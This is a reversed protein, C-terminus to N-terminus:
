RSCSRSRCCSTSSRATSTAGSTASGGGDGRRAIGRVIAALVAMGSAPRSSTRCRSGPWRAHPVVDDVRRRLVALEHEHHLERRHQVVPACPVGPLHDPNLFLHGQLRLLGYLFAMFAVSFVVVSKGYCKWDQDRSADSGLSRLFGREVVDAGSARTSRAGDLDGASLRPRHARGRLLRDAGLGPVM